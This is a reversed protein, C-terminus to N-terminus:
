MFISHLWKQLQQSMSFFVCTIYRTYEQITNHHLPPSTPLKSKGGLFAAVPLVSRFALPPFHLRTDWPATFALLLPM